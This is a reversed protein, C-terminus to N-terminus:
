IRYVSGSTSEELILISADKSLARSCYSNTQYKVGSLELGNENIL